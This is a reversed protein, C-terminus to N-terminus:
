IALSTSCAAVSDFARLKQSNRTPSNRQRLAPRLRVRTRAAHLAPAEPISARLAFAEIRTAPRTM